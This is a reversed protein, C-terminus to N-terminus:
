DADDVGGIQEELRDARHELQEAVTQLHEDCDERERLEDAEGRLAVITDDIAGAADSWGHLQNLWERQNNTLGHREVIEAGRTDPKRHLYERRNFQLLEIAIFSLPPDYTESIREAHEEKIQLPTPPGFGARKLQNEARDLAWTVDKYAAVLDQQARKAAMEPRELEAHGTMARIASALSSNANSIATQLTDLDGHDLETGDDSHKPETM